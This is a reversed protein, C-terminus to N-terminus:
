GNKIINNLYMKTSKEKKRVIKNQTKLKSNQRVEIQCSEYTNNEPKTSGCTLLIGEVSVNM